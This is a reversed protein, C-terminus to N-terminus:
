KEEKWNTLESVAFLYLSEKKGNATWWSIIVEMKSLFMDPFEYEKSRYYLFELYESEEVVIYEDFHGWSEALDIASSLAEEASFVVERLVYCSHEDFWETITYASKSNPMVQEFANANRLWESHANRFYNLDKM